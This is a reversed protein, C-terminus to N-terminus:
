AAAAMAKASAKCTELGRALGMTTGSGDGILATVGGEGFVVSQQSSPTSLVEAAREPSDVGLEDHLPVCRDRRWDVIYWGDDDSSAQRPQEDGACGEASPHWNAQYGAENPRGYCWGAAALKAAIAERADCAAFTEPNDGSGGRCASNFRDWQGIMAATDQGAGATAEAQEAPQSCGALTFLMAGVLLGRM